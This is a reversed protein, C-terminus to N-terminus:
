YTMIIRKEFRFSIQVEYSRLSVSGQCIGQVTKGVLKKELLSFTHDYKTHCGCCCGMGSVHIWSMFHFYFFFNLTMTGNCNEKLMASHYLHFTAPFYFLLLLSLLFPNFHASTFPPSETLSISLVQQFLMRLRCHDLPVSVVTRISSSLDIWLKPAM